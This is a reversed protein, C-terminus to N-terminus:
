TFRSYHKQKQKRGMRGISAKTKKKVTREHMRPHKLHTEEHVISDLVECRGEKKSKKKNIRVAISGDQKWETDGYGRMSNDVIRSIRRYRNM